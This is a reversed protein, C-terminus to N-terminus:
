TRPVGSYRLQELSLKMDFDTPSKTTNPKVCRIFHSNCSGLLDVLGGLQKAFM